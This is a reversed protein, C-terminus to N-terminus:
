ESTARRGTFSRTPSFWTPRAIAGIPRTGELFTVGPLRARAAVLMDASIDIGVMAADPYKQRLAQTSIGNGCGLDAVRRRPGEPVRALLDTCPRGRETEFRAYLNPDWTRM